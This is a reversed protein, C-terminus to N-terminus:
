VLQYLKEKEHEKKEGIGKLYALTGEPLSFSNEGSVFSDLIEKYSISFVHELAKATMDPYDILLAFVNADLGDVQYPHEKFDIEDYPISPIWMELMEEDFMGASNVGFSQEKDFVHDLELKRTKKHRRLNTNRPNSDLQHTFWDFIFRNILAQQLDLGGEPEYYEVTKLLEKLTFCNYRRPFSSFLQYLQCFDYYQYRGCDQFNESILGLRENLKVVSYKAAKEGLAEAYAQSICEGAVRVDDRPKFFMVRGDIYYWSDKEKLLEPDMDVYTLVNERHMKFPNELKSIKRM